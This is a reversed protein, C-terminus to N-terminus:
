SLITPYQQSAHLMRYLVCCCHDFYLHLQKGFGVLAFLAVPVMLEGWVPVQLMPANATEEDM